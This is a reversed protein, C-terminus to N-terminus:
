HKYVIHVNSSSTLYVLSAYDVAFELVDGVRIDRVADEIDLITHDSSGGLIVVGADIPFIDDQNGIDVKGIAALARRRIGRDTYVPKHGFADVGVEGIPHTPKDRVEIIEAFLRYVDQRMMSMDYGYFVDLDRALLIGEGMRLHNIREPMDADLVRMFSSTAGGSIYRLRRGLKAEVDEAAEVLENLKAATPLISGYCGVNTGIGLLELGDLEKEAMLAAETLEDRDWFGERLDGAEVMIIIGFKKGEAKAAEDLARMTDVESVLSIDAYRVVDRTESIMPIRIMMLPKDTGAERIAKLHEIRSSAIQAAGGREFVRECEILGSTGKIVGAVDIGMEACRGVAYRVNHGLAALDICLKTYREPM